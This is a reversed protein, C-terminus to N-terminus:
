LYLVCPVLTQHKWSAIDEKTLGASGYGWYKYALGMSALWGKPKETPKKILESCVTIQAMVAIMGIVLRKM